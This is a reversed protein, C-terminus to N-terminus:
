QQGAANSYCPCCTQKDCPFEQAQLQQWLQQPQLRLRQCLFAQIRQIMGAPQLLNCEAQDWMDHGEADNLYPALCSLSWAFTVTKTVIHLSRFTCLLMTLAMFRAPLLCVEAAPLSKSEGYLQPGQKPDM